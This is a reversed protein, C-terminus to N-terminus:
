PLSTTRPACLHYFACAFVRRSKERLTKQQQKGNYEHRRLLHMMQEAPVVENRLV